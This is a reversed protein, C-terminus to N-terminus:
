RAKEKVDEYSRKLIPEISNQSSGRLISQNDPLWNLHGRKRYDM